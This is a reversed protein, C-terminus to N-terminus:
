PPLPNSAVEGQYSGHGLAVISDGVLSSTSGTDLVFIQGASLVTSCGAGSCTSAGSWVAGAANGNAGILTFTWGGFPLAAGSAARVTFSLFSASVQHGTAGIELNYCESPVTCGAEGPGTVNSIKGWAFADGLPANSPGQALGTILIYLVAAIVVTSAILLIMAIV